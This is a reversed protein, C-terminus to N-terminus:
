QAKEVVPFGSSKLDAYGGTMAKVNTYGMSRLADVAVQARGGSRCYTVIAASKDPLQKAAQAYVEGVPIHRAGQLYGESWEEASRVDVFIAGADFDARAARADPRPSQAEAVAPLVSLSALVLALLIKRITM